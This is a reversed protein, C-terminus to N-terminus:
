RTRTRARAWPLSGARRLRPAGRASDDEPDDGGCASLGLLLAGGTVGGLLQRRTVPGVRPGVLLDTTVFPLQRPRDTAFVTPSYITTSASVGVFEPHADNTIAAPRDFLTVAM